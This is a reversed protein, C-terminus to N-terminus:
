RIVPEVNVLHGGSGDQAYPFSSPYSLGACSLSTVTTPKTSGVDILFAAAADPSYKVLDRLM